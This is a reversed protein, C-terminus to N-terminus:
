VPKVHTGEPDVDHPVQIAMEVPYLGLDGSMTYTILDYVSISWIIYYRPSLFSIHTLEHCDSNMCLESMGSLFKV